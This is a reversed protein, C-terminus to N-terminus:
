KQIKQINTPSSCCSQSTRIEKPIKLGEFQHVSINISRSNLNEASSCRRRLRTKDLNSNSMKGKSQLNSIKEKETVTPKKSPVRYSPSIQETWTQFIGSLGERWNM